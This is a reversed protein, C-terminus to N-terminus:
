VRRGERLHREHRVSMLDATVDTIFEDDAEYFRSIWPATRAHLRFRYGPGGQQSIPVEEVALAITGASVRGAPGDWEVRYTAQEGIAFPVPGPPPPEPVAPEGLRAEVDPGWVLEYIFRNPAGPAVPEFHAREVLPLDARGPGGAIRENSVIYRVDLD